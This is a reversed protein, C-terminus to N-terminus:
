RLQLEYNITCRNCIDSYESSCALWPTDFTYQQKSLTTEVTLNSDFWLYYLVVREDITIVAFFPNTIKVIINKKVLTAITSM